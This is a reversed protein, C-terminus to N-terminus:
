APEAPQANRIRAAHAAQLARGERLFDRLLRLDAASYRALAAQGEQGIPGYIETILRQAEPTMEVLVGRRDAPDRVRRAYGARELRDLAATTAGPSLGAAGALHGASLRDGAWLLGLCRLDTRNIGLRVSAAEDVLDAAQQFQAIELSVEALLDERTENPM